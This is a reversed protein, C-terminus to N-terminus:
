NRVEVEPSRKSENARRSRDFSSVSYMWVAAEPMSTDEYLTVPALVEGIMEPESDGPLRRYIRYGKLDGVVPEWVIKVGRATRIGQVGKPVPPPTKDVPVVEVVPSVGGAVQGRDYMIVAQVKYQYQRGNVVGTDTFDMGEVLKGLPVFSGGGSRRLIRYRVQQRIPTGDIHEDVAPWSLTVQGDGVRGRLTGPAAPPIDWLFSVINSDASEAWWGAKARIKFFYLHGPRLLTTRYLGTRPKGPAVAGGELMVPEGFPIPCDACYDEAPIVARFLAFEDIRELPEGLVTEQPFTWTLTLGKETLEYNLDTIAKPVINEPPVPRTKYGCGSMVSLVLVLLFILGTGCRYGRWVAEARGMM